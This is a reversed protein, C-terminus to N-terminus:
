LVYFNISILPYHYDNKGNKCIYEIFLFNMYRCISIFLVM